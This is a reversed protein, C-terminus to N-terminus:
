VWLQIKKLGKWKFFKNKLWDERGEGYEMM